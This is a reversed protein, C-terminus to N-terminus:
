QKQNIAAVKRRGARQAASRRPKADQERDENGTVDDEGDDAAEPERFNEEDEEEVLRHRHERKEITDQVVIKSDTLNKLIVDM